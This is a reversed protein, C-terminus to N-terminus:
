RVVDLLTRSGLFDGGFVHGVTRAALVVLVVLAGVEKPARLFACVWLM